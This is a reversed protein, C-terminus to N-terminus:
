DPGTWVLEVSQSDRHEQKSLAATQLAIGVARNDIAGADKKWRDIFALALDRHQHHPVRKAIEAHLSGDACTQIAHAIAEATSAPLKCVLSWAAEVIVREPTM